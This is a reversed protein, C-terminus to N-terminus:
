IKEFESLKFIGTKGEFEMDMNGVRGHRNKRIVWNM